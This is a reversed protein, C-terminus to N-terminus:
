HKDKIKPFTKPQATQNSADHSKDTCHLISTVCNRDSSLWFRVGTGNDDRYSMIKYKKKKFILIKLLSICKTNKWDLENQVNCRISQTGYKQCVLEIPFCNSILSPYM